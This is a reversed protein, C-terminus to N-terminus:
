QQDFAELCQALRLRFAKYMCFSQIKVNNSEQVMLERGDSEQGMLDHVRSDRLRQLMSASSQLMMRPQTSRRPMADQVM